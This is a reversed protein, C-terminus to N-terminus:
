ESMPLVKENHSRVKLLYRGSEGNMCGPAYFNNDDYSDLEKFEDGEGPELGWAEKAIALAQTLSVSPKM